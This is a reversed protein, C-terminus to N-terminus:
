RHVVDKRAWREGGIELIHCLEHLRTPPNGLGQSSSRWCPQGRASGRRARVAWQCREGACARGDEAGSGEIEMETGM